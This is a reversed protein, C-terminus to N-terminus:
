SQDRWSVNFFIIHFITLECFFFRFLEYDGWVQDCIALNWVEEDESDENGWNTEKPEVKLSNYHIYIAIANTICNRVEKFFCWWVIKFRESVIFKDFLRKVSILCNGLQQSLYSVPSGSLQTTIVFHGIKVLMYMTNSFCLSFSCHHYYTNILQPTSPLPPRLPTPSPCINPHRDRRDSRM